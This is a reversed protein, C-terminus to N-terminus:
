PTESGKAIESSVETNGDCPEGIKDELWESFEELSRSGNKFFQYLKYKRNLYINANDYLKNIIDITDNSNFWNQWTIGNWTKDFGTDKYFHSKKNLIKEINELMDKTGTFGCKPYVKNNYGSKTYSLCGDGDFFGRIFPIILSKRAFVDENPFTLTLSKKPTCGLKNLSEWLHKNKVNWRCRPRIPDKTDTIINIKNHKVFSNFKILHDIDSLQLAIEFSYNNKGKHLGKALPSSIYGDAYIFGLWYAKEETDICDFITEDFRCENQHNIITYGKSKVGKSIAEKNCKLIKSVEVLSKGENLLTIAEDITSDKLKHLAGKVIKVNNSVLCEKIRKDSCRYVKAIDRMSIKEITYLRIIENVDENTFEKKM